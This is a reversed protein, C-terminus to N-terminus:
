SITFFEIPYNIKNETKYLYNDISMYTMSFLDIKQIMYNNIYNFIENNFTLIARDCWWKNNKTINNSINPYIASILEDITNVIHCFQESL